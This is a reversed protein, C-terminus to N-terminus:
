AREDFMSLAQALSDVQYIRVKDSIQRALTIPYWCSSPVDCESTNEKIYILAVEKGACAAYILEAVTGPAFAGDFFTIIFDSDDIMAREASVVLSSDCDSFCGDEGEEYWFPGIYRYKEGMFGIYCPESSRRTLKDVDGLAIARIDGRLSGQAQSTFPAAIYCSKIRERTSKM